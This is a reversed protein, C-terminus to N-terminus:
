APPRKKGLLKVDDRPVLKQKGPLLEGTRLKIPREVEIRFKKPTEGVVIGPVKLRGNAANVYVVAHRVVPL